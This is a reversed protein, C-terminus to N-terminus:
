MRTRRSSFIAPAQAADLKGLWKADERHRKWRSVLFRRAPVEIVYYSVCALGFATAVGVAIVLDSPATGGLTKEVLFLAPAHFLYLSFSIRGAFRLPAAGFAVVSIPHELAVLFVSLAAAFATAMDWLSSATQPAVGQRVLLFLPLLLALMGIIINPEQRDIRRHMRGAVVGFLFFPLKSPLMIGSGPFGLLGDLALFIAIAIAINRYRIPNSLFLWILPFLLYFQIEPPVSWFVGSSGMLAMHRLVQGIGNIPQFYNLDQFLSLLAIALVAAIYVPYIRAFRTVLFDACSKPSLPRNGYIYAMLFGSLAFFLGVANSGIDRIPMSLASPFMLNVHAVIVGAAAIGRLGDLSGIHRERDM